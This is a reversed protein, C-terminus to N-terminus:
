FLICELQFVVHKTPAISAPLTCIVTSTLIVSLQCDVPSGQQRQSPDNLHSSERGIHNKKMKKVLIWCTFGRNPDVQSSRTQEPETGRNCSSTPCLRSCRSRGTPTGVGSSPIVLCRRILMSAPDYLHPM